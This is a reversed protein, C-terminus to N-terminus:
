DLRGGFIAKFWKPAHYRNSRLESLRGKTEGLERQLDEVKTQLAKERDLAAQERLRAEDLLAQNLRVMEPPMLATSRITEAETEADEQEQVDWTFNELEGADLREVVQEHNVGAATQEYIFKLLKLDDPTFLRAQGKEPTAETSLWRAYRQSYVRLAPKSIGTADAAQKVTYLDPV